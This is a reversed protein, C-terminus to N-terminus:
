EVVLRAPTAKNLLKDIAATLTDWRIPKSLFEDVGKEYAEARSQSDDYATIMIIKSTPSQKKIFEIFGMGTGDTLHNDLFIIEPATHMLAMRAQNLDFVAQTQYQKKKLLTSLLYCIDVEDDIILILPSTNASSVPM